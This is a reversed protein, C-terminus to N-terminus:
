LAYQAVEMALKYTDAGVKTITPQRNYDGSRIVYEGENAKYYVIGDATFKDHPGVLCVDVKNTNDNAGYIFACHPYNSQANLLRVTANAGSVKYKAMDRGPRKIDAVTLNAIPTITLGVAADQAVAVDAESVVASGPVITEAAAYFSASAVFALAVRSLKFKM